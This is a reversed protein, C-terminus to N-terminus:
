QNQLSAWLERRMREIVPSIPSMGRVPESVRDRNRLGSSYTDQSDQSLPCTLTPYALTDLCSRRSSGCCWARGASPQSRINSSFDELLLMDGGDVGAGCFAHM